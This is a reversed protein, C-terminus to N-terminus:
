LEQQSADPIETETGSDSVPELGQTQELESPLSGHKAAAQLVRNQVATTSPSTALKLKNPEMQGAFWLIGQSASQFPNFLARLDAKLDEASEYSNVRSYIVQVVGVFGILQLTKEWEILANIAAVFGVCAALLAGPTPRSEELIAETEEKLITLPTETKMEKVRLGEGVWSKFGGQIRYSRRIGLKRLARAVKKSHLGNADMIIVKTRGNVIKLNKIVAATLVDDIENANKLLKKISGEVEPLEVAAFKFRAGRRLDPIGDSEKLVQPRIDILVTNEEERLFESALKATLNGSYGGYKYQWFSIGVFVTGGVFVIVPIVPNEPNVGVAKEIDTIVANVQQIASGLPKIIKSVKEEAVDLVSQVEPPLLAKTFSYVDTVLNVVITIVSGASDEIILVVKKIANNEPTGMQFPSMLDISNNRTFGGSDNGMPLIGSIANEFLETLNKTSKLISANINSYTDKMASSASSASTDLSEQISSFFEELSKETREISFNAINKTELFSESTSESQNSVTDSISNVTSGFSPLSDTSVQSNSLIEMGEGSAASPTNVVADGVSISSDSVISAAETAPQLDETSSANTPISLYNYMSDSLTNSVSTNVDKIQMESMLTWNRVGHTQATESASPMSEPFPIMGGNPVHLKMDNPSYLDRMDALSSETETLQNEVYARNELHQSPIAVDQSLGGEGIVTRESVTQIEVSKASYLDPGKVANVYDSRMAQTRFCLGHNRKRVPCFLREEESFVKEVAIKQCSSPCAKIRGYCCFQHQQPHSAYLLTTVAASVVNIAM